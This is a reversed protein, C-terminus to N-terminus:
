TTRYATCFVVFSFSGAPVKFDHVQDYFIHNDDSEHNSLLVHRSAHNLKWFTHVILMYFKAITSILCIFSYLPLVIILYMEAQFLRVLAAYIDILIRTLCTQENYCTKRKGYKLLWLSSSTARIINNSVRCVLNNSNQALYPFTLSLISNHQRINVFQM